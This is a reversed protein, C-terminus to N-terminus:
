IPLFHENSDLNQQNELAVNGLNLNRKKIYELSYM